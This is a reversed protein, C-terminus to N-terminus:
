DPPARRPRALLKVALGLVLTGAFGALEIWNAQAGLWLVVVIALAPITPGLPLRFAPSSGSTDRARLIPVALCTTLYQASVALVSLNVLRSFGFALTLLCTLGTTVLVAVHPTGHRPHIRSLCRPLHGDAALPELYRPGTLAVGACFGLFSVLAAAAVMDGGIEGLLDHGMVALPQEAGAIQPTAVSATWQLAMYLATAGVLSGLVATPMASRPNKTEGAPVPVVEFGQFAFFASFAAGPLPALGRPAFPGPPRLAGRAFGAVILALLPLLKAVTLGDTTYAGPKVGVYNIGGLVLTVGVAVGVGPVSGGLPPWLHGLYPPIARAVAAWSMVAAVWCTWGVLFGVHQGMADHAYVYPGGSRECRSAAEAFCLGILASMAGCLGFALLSAPGLERALLGPFAYIGSGVIANVGLCLADFLSLPRHRGM